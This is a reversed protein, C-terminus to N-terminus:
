KRREVKITASAKEILERLLKIQQGREILVRIRPAVQELPPMPPTVREMIRVLHCGDGSEFVRMDGVQMEFFKTEFGLPGDHNMYLGIDGGKDASERHLSRGRAAAEFDADSEITAM